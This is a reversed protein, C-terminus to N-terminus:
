HAEDWNQAARADVQLPVHLNVAPHPADAMVKTVLPITKDVEKDPVEFILEDHVQLLMRAGLKRGTLEDEIKIMARRIIDAASGQLRANIAARENFARLSPNPSKIDPYHCKRGFLTTVYGDRRCDERTKDMYDRIGPFREFYKKIYASAEERPISLQNALGFASIGYIIGFNIAKARRRIDPPMGKVPVGFMESATMAHIDIGDQFAKRLTPVEAVESLLRLEIQSYDASVLKHGPAAVFARRIKRGDETRIPINQLNPESSSLRGTSTAALAYSTHVRHTQPNVYAPLAETYTSRLKSVQRWDLIMQPLKHGQEALEELARAGTSWQGTKTKAGGPLGMQGFLIDGLQKPSGPNVQTGAITNIEQELQVQKKGFDNSLKALVPQDISIGRQEMRALVRPMPRELTEYVTM